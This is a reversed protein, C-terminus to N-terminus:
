EGLWFCRAGGTPSSKPNDDHPIQCVSRRFICKTLWKMGEAPLVLGKRQEFIEPAAGTWFLTKHLRKLTKFTVPSSESYYSWPFLQRYSLFHRVIRKSLYCNWDYKVAISNWFRQRVSLQIEQLCNRIFLIWWPRKNNSLTKPLFTISDRWMKGSFLQQAAVLSNGVFWHQRRAAM